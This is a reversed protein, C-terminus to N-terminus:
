FELPKRTIATIKAIQKNIAETRNSWKIYEKEPNKLLNYLLPLILNEVEKMQESHKAVIEAKREEVEDIIARINGETGSLSTALEKIEMALVKDIKEEVRAIDSKRTLDTPITTTPAITPIKSVRALIENLKAEMGSVDATPQVPAVPAAEPADVLEFGFDQDAFPDTPDFTDSM